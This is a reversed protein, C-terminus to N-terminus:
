KYRNSMEIRQLKIKKLEDLKIQLNKEESSFNDQIPILPKSEKQDLSITKEIFALCESSPLPKSLVKEHLQIIPVKKDQATKEHQIIPV